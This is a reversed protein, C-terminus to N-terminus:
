ADEKYLVKTTFFEFIEHSSVNQRKKALQKELENIVLNNMEEDFKKALL